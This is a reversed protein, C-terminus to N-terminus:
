GKVVDVPRMERRIKELLADQLVTYRARWGLVGEGLCSGTLRFNKLSVSLVPGRNSKVTYELRVDLTILMAKYTEKWRPESELHYTHTHACISVCLVHEALM